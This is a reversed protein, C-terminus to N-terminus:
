FNHYDQNDRDYKEATLRARLDENYKIFYSVTCIVGVFSAFFVDWLTLEFVEKFVLELFYNCGLISLTGVVGVLVSYVLKFLLARM